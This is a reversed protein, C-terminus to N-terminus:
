ENTVFQQQVLDEIFQTLLTQALDGAAIAVGEHAISLLSFADEYSQSGFHELLTIIMLLKDDELNKSTNRENYQEEKDQQSTFPVNLVFLQNEQTKYFFKKGFYNKQGYYSDNDYLKIYQKIYDDNAFYVMGNELPQEQREFYTDIKKFHEVFNGTKEVSFICPLKDWKILEKHIAQSLWAGHSYVALSGDLIWASRYLIDFFNNERLLTLTNMFLLKEMISMIQTTLASSSQESYLLEHFGLLDTVFVAKPTPLCKCNTQHTNEFTKPTLIYGSKKCEACPQATYDIKDINKILDTYTQLLTKQHLVTHGQQELWAVIPNQAEKFMKYLAYRFFDYEDDFDQTALGHVPLMNAFNYHSHTNQYDEPLAYSTNLYHVLKGFDIVCQNVQIIGLKADYDKSLEADYKSGDLVFIHKLNNINVENVIHSDIRPFNIKKVRMKLGNLANQVGANQMLDQNSLHSAFEGKYPM